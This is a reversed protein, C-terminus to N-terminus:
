LAEVKAKFASYNEKPLTSVSSAGYEELISKIKPKAADGKDKVLKRLDEVKIDDGAPTENRSVEGAPQAPTRVVEMTGEKKVPTKAPANSLFQQLLAIVEPHLTITLTINM